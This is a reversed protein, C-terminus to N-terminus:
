AVLQTVYDITHGDWHYELHAEHLCDRLLSTRFAAICEGGPERVSPYLLGVVGAARLEAGLAQGEGYSDPALVGPQHTTASRLDVVDGVVNVRHLRMQIRTPDEKTAALFKASHYRTEAIATAKEKGAYFVGYTGNSFRSGEPNLHTFAAMIPGSGPGFLREAPPVLEIQGTEDRIRDNTMAELAYLDDFDAPDAVRDFLYISPFRTPVARFGPTWSVGISPWAM